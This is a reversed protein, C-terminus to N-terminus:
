FGSVKRFTVAWYSKIESWSLDVGTIPMKPPKVRPRILPFTSALALFNMRERTHGDSKINGHCGNFEMYTQGFIM